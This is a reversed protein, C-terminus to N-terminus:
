HYVLPSPSEEVELEVYLVGTVLSETELKARLGHKIEDNLAHMGQYVTAGELRKRILDDQLEIIVPMSLDNTAQNFRIMVRSVSGITVGRFKVPAGEELGSLSTDFYIIFKETQTFLKSSTFLLLGGVGLFLGIFVFIGIATPSAKKSM